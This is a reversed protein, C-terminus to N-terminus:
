RAYYQENVFLMFRINMTFMKHRHRVPQCVQLLNAVLQAFVIIETEKSTYAQKTHYMGDLVTQVVLRPM